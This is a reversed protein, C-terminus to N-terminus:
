NLEKVNPLRDPNSGVALHEIQGDPGVYILRQKEQATSLFVFYLWSSPFNKCETKDFIRRRCEIGHLNRSSRNVTVM